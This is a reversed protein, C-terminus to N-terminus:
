RNPKAEVFKRDDGYTMPPVNLQPRGTRIAKNTTTM